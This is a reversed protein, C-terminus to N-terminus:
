YNSKFIVNKWFETSKNIYATAFGLCFHRKKDSIFLKKRATRGCINASHLINRATQASATKGSSTAIDASLNQASM